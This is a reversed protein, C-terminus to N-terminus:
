SVQPHQPNPLLCRPSHRQEVDGTVSSVFCRLPKQCRSRPLGASGRGQVESFSMGSCSVQFSVETAQVECVKRQFKQKKWYNKLQELRQWTEWTKTGEAGCLCCQPLNNNLQYSHFPVAKIVQCYFVLKIATGQLVTSSARAYHGQWNPRCFCCATCDSKNRRYILFNRKHKGVCVKGLLM